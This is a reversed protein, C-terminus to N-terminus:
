AGPRIRWHLIWYPRAPNGTLRVAAEHVLVAGAREIESRITFAHGQLADWGALRAQQFGPSSRAALLSAIQDSTMNALALLAERPAVQPDILPRGSYVTLAPEVRTFLSPTMDMVLLLEDVSQFPGTRPRHPYGTARYDDAKAGNLRKFQGTERWDLIKDAISGAAPADLGASRLLGLLLGTDANNLDIRGLEDQIAVRVSIGNFVFSQATGDTRWHQSPRSDTLGLIARNIVAEALASINALDFNNRALRYSINGNWLLSVSIITLLGISWLVLVVPM